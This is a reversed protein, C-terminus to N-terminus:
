LGGRLARMRHEGSLTVIYNAHGDLSPPSVIFRRGKSGVPLVPGQRGGHRPAEEAERAAALSWSLAPCTGSCVARLSVHESSLSGLGVGCNRECVIAVNVSLKDDVTVAQRAVLTDLYPRSAELAVLFRQGDVLASPPVTVRVGTTTRFPCPRADPGPTCRWVFTVRLLDNENLDMSAGADLVLPLRASVTRAAGGLLVLQLPAPVVLFFGMIFEVLRTGNWASFRLGHKGIPLSFPESHFRKVVPSAVEPMKKQAATGMNLVLAFSYTYDEIHSSSPDQAEGLVQIADRRSWHPMHGEKEFSYGLEPMSLDVVRDQDPPLVVKPHFEHQMEKGLPGRPENALIILNVAPPGKSLRKNFVHKLLVMYRRGRPMANYGPTGPALADLGLALVEEHLYGRFFEEGKRVDVIGDGWVVKLTLDQGLDQVSVLLLLDQFLAVKPQYVFYPASATRTQDAVNRTCHFGTQTENRCRTCYFAHYVTVCSGPACKSNFDDQDACFDRLTNCDPGGFGELCNCAKGDASLEGGNYCPVAPRALPVYALFTLCCIAVTGGGAPVVKRLIAGM